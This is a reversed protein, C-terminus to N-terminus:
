DFLDPQRAGKQWDALRQGHPHETAFFMRYLRQRESRGIREQEGVFRWITGLKQRYLETLDAKLQPTEASTRRRQRIQRWEEGDFFATIEPAYREMMEDSFSLQRILAMELPFLAYFDVSRHGRRRLERVSALPLQSPATIDAFAVVYDSLGIRRMIDPLVENTDRNLITIRARPIRSRGQAVMRDVRAVLSEHDRPDQNIFVADTFSTQARDTGVLELARLPSGDFEGASRHRDLNRGPGAFLDLFWRKGISHTIALAPPVYDNIFQLKTRAWEGSSRGRLGDSCICPEETRPTM